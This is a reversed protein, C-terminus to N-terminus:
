NRIITWRWFRRKGEGPGLRRVGVPNGGVVVGKLGSLVMKRSSELNWASEFM